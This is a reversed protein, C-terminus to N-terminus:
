WACAYQSLVIKIGQEMKPCLAAVSNRDQEYQLHVKEVAQEFALRLAQRNTEPAKETICKEYKKFFDDCAPVGLSYNGGKQGEQGPQGSSSVPATTMAGQPSAQRRCASFCLGAAVLLVALLGKSAKLLDM